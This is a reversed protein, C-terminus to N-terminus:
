VIAVQNREQLEFNLLDSVDGNESAKSQDDTHAQVDAKVMISMPHSAPLLAIVIRNLSAGTDHWM